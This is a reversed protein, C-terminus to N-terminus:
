LIGRATWACGLSRNRPAWQAAARVRALANGAPAFDPRLKL